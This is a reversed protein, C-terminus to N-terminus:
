MTAFHLKKLTTVHFYIIFYKCFHSPHIYQIYVLRTSSHNEILYWTASFNESTFDGSMGTFMNELDKLPVKGRFFLVSNSVWVASRYLGMMFVDCTM